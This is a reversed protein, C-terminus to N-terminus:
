GYLKLAKAITMELEAKAKYYTMKSMMCHAYSKDYGRTCAIDDRLVSRVGTDATLVCEDIIRNIERFHQKVEKPIRDNKLERKRRDYDAVFDTVLNRVTVPLKATDVVAKASQDSSIRRLNKGV